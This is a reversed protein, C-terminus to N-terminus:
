ILKLIVYVVHFRLTNLCIRQFIEWFCYRSTRKKLHQVVKTVFFVIIRTLHAPKDMITDCYALFNVSASLCLVLISMRMRQWSHCATMAALATSFEPQGYQVPRRTRAPKLSRAASWGSIAAWHSSVSFPVRVGSITVGPLWLRTHHFHWSPCTQFVAM